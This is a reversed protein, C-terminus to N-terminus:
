EGGVGGVGGVEGVGGWGVIWGDLWVRGVQFTNPCQGPDALPAPAVGMKLTFRTNSYGFYYPTPSSALTTTLRLAQQTGTNLLGIRLTGASTTTGALNFPYVLQAFPDYTTPPTGICLCSGGTSGPAPPPPPPFPM